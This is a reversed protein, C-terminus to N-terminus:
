RLPLVVSSIYNSMIQVSCLGKLVGALDLLCTTLCVKIGVGSFQEVLHSRGGSSGEQSGSAEDDEQCSM